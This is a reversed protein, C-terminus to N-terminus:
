KDIERQFKNRIDSFMVCYKWGIPCSDACNYGRCIYGSEGSGKLYKEFIEVYPPDEKYKSDYECDSHTSQQPKSGNLSIETNNDMTIKVKENEIEIITKM